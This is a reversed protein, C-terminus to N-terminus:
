EQVHRLVNRTQTDNLGLQRLVILDAQSPTGGATAVRSLQDSLMAVRVPRSEMHEPDHHLACAQVIDTHLNWREALQAGAQTHYRQVLERILAEGEPPPPYNALIRLVRAEGIDHLLGCLYAPEYNLALERSVAVACKAALAARASRELLLETYQPMSASNAIAGLIDRAAGLGMRMVADRTSATRFGRYYLASNGVALFRAAILPDEEVVKALTSINVNPRQAMRLAATAVAPNAPLPANGSNLKRILTAELKMAEPSRASDPSLPLVSRSIRQAVVDSAEEQVSRRLPAACIVRNRGTRKAQYVAADARKLLASLSSDPVEPNFVALGVSATVTSPHGEKPFTLAEIWARHREAIKPAAESDCGALGVVFEEGGYRGAVDNSRITRKLHQGIARLVTDGVDHGFRDNISKFHDLDLFMVAFPAGRGLEAQLAEELAGRNFVQTLPDLTAKIRLHDRENRMARLADRHRKNRLQVDIRASLEGQSTQARVVDDAGARLGREIAAEDENPVVMVVPTDTSSQALRLDACIEFGWTERGTVFILLLEPAHEEIERTIDTPWIAQVARLGVKQSLTRAVHPELASSSALLLTGRQEDVPGSV